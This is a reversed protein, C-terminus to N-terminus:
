TEEKCMLVMKKGREDINQVSLINFNRSNHVLRNTTTVSTYKRMTVMHTVDSKVQQADFYERGTLPQVQAWRTASDAWTRVVGGAIDRAETFTQITVRHRLLGAMHRTDKSTAM